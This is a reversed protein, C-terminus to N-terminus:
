ARGREGFRGKLVYSALGGYERFIIALRERYGLDSPLPSFHPIVTFGMSQFTLLSRLMHPPDTILVIRRVGQPFLISATFRANEETTLSCEEGDVVAAPIGFREIQAVMRRADGRGSVFIKPARASSWLDAAVKARSGSFRYGRGLVVIADVHDIDQQPAVSPILGVLIGNAMAIGPPSTILLCVLTFGIVIRTWRRQWRWQFSPKSQSRRVTWIVWIVGLALLIVLALRVSLPIGRTFLGSVFWTFYAWRSSAHPCSSPDLM